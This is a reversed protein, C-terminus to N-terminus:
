SRRREGLEPYRGQLEETTSANVAPLSGTLGARCLAVVQDPGSPPYMQAVMAPVRLASSRLTERAWRVSEVKAPPMMLHLNM